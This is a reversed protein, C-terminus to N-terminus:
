HDNTARFNTIFTEQINTMCLLFVSREGNVSEIKAVKTDVPFQVRELLAAQKEKIFEGALEPRRQSIEDVSAWLMLVLDPAIINAGKYISLEWQALWSWLKNSSDLFDNLLPGDNFNPVSLQPYRDCLVVGGNAKWKEAARLKKKREFALSVAWLVKFLKSVIGYENLSKIKEVKTLSEVSKNKAKSRLQMLFKLPLRHWSSSGDGSGMYLHLVDIKKRLEKPILKNQTSKGAGDTGMVAIILGENEFTRFYPKNAHLGLKRRVRVWFYNIRRATSGLIGLVRWHRFIDRNVRFFQKLKRDSVGNEFFSLFLKKNDETKFYDPLKEYFKNASYREKLWIFERKNDGTAKRDFFLTKLRKRTTLKLAARVILLLVEDEPSAIYIPCEKKYVIANSLIQEELKIHYPKVGSEGGLLVFHAHIHVIKGTENDIGIYDEIRPYKRKGVAKMRIFGSAFIAKEIETQSNREFLIDLDTDGLLAADLHENSKFHCYRINSGNM